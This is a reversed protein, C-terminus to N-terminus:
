RMNRPMPESPAHSYVCAERFEQWTTAQNMRLSALYPVGGVDLWAARLAFAQHQEPDEALVPGHRTYKLGFTVSEQGKVPFTEQVVRM